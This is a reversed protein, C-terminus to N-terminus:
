NGEVSDCFDHSQISSSRVLSIKFNGGGKPKNNSRKKASYFPLFNTSVAFVDDNVNYYDIDNVYVIDIIIDKDHGKQSTVETIRKVTCFHPAIVFSLAAPIEFYRENAEARNLAVIKTIRHMTM